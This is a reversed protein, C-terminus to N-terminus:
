SIPAKRLARLSYLGKWPLGPMPRARDKRKPSFFGRQTSFVRECFEKSGVAVGDTLYRLRCSLAEGPSLHGGAKLVAEVQERRFGPRGKEGRGPDGPVSEGAIYMQKRFEAHVSKWTASKWRDSKSRHAWLDLIRRLGERAHAALEGGACVAESYGSGRYDKPDSVIGAGVPNLDVQGCHKRM